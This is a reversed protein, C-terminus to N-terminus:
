ETVETVSLTSTDDVTIAFRKTSGATTSPLIFKKGEVYGAYWANGDWDLTHANSRKTDSKGNGVIHAYKGATDDINYIGQVHQNISSAKTAYGEAHSCNGAAVTFYGEAHSKEGTTRTLAGETHSFDGSATTSSGEAHSSNGSATTNSGEAYSKEGTATTYFGGAHSYKGSANTGLGEAHSCDGATTNSGEAHSCTMQAKTSFGEAHSHTGSAITNNGEAHSNEGSARSEKGESHSYNGSATTSDGEAHSYNGEAKNTGSNFVESKVGSGSKGISDPLYKEDIKKIEYDLAYLKCSEPITESKYIVGGIYQGDGQVYAYVVQVNDTDSSMLAEVDGFYVNGDDSGFDAGGVATYRYENGDIVIKYEKGVKIVPSGSFTTSVLIGNSEWANEGENSARILSIIDTEVNTIDGTYFPRNKIYAPDTKDNVNWDPQGVKVMQYVRMTHTVQAQTPESEEVAIMSVAVIDNQLANGLAFPEGTDDGTGLIALNGIFIVAMGDGMDLQRATCTYRTGDLVVYYTEGVTLNFPNGTTDFQYPNSPTVGDGSAVFTFAQEALVDQEVIGDDAVIKGDASVVLPKGADEATVAPLIAEMREVFDSHEIVVSDTNNVCELVSIKDFDTTGWSYETAGSDSLCELRISFKLRGALQTASESILWSFIVRDDSDPSIQLDTVTYFDKNIVKKNKSINEYHIQIYNCMSM